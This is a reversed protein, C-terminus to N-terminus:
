LASYQTTLSSFKLKLESGARLCPYLCAASAHLSHLEIKLDFIRSQRRDLASLMHWGSFVLFIKVIGCLKCNRIGIGSIAWRQVTAPVLCKSIAASGETIYVRSIANVIILLKFVISCENQGWDANGDRNYFYLVYYQIRSHFNFWYFLLSNKYFQWIADPM